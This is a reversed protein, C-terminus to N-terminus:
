YESHELNSSPQRDFEHVTTKRKVFDRKVGGGGKNKRRQVYTVRMLGVAQEFGM